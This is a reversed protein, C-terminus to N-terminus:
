RIEVIGFKLDDNIFLRYGMYTSSANNKIAKLAQTDVAVQNAIAKATDSSMFIYPDFNGNLNVYKEIEKDIRNLDITTIISFKSM